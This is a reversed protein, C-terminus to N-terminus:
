PLTFVKPNARLREARLIAEIDEVAQQLAGQRNVVVYDFGHMAELERRVAETRGALQEPTETSRATLRATLDDASEPALFILIAEAVLAKISAAGQVDVKVIIDRAEAAARRLEFKPTGYFNDYVAAWELFEGDGLMRQFEDRSRFYYPVGDSEGDRPARTTVTVAYHCDPHRAKLQDLVSDKGVGSPGSLVFLLPTAPHGLTNLAGAM